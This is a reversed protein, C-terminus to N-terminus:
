APLYKSLTTQYLMATTQYSAQLTTQLALIKTAVEDTSVGEISDLMTQAM